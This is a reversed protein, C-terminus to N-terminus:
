PPNPFGIGLLTSHPARHPWAGAGPLAPLPPARAQRVRAAAENTRLTALAVVPPEGPAPRAADAFSLRLPPPPPPPASPAPAQAALPAGMAVLWALVAVLRSGNSRSVM